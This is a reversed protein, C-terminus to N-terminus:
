RSSAERRSLDVRSAGLVEDGQGFPCRAGELGAVLGRRFAIPCARVSFGPQAHRSISASM